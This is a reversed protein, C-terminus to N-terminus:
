IKVAKRNEKLRDETKKVDLVGRCRSSLAGRTCFCHLLQVKYWLMKNHVPFNYMICHVIAIAKAFSLSLSLPLSWRPQPAPLRFHQSIHVKLVYLVWGRVKHEPNLWQNERAQPLGHVTLRSGSPRSSTASLSTSRDFPWGYYSVHLHSRLRKIISNRKYRSLGESNHNYKITM